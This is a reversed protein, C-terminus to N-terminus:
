KLDDQNMLPFKESLVKAAQDNDEVRLVVYAGDGSGAVFAYVYEININAGALTWLVEALGGPTNPMKVVTVDTLSAIVNKDQLVKLAKDNDDVILRLIGFDPTDAVSLAYLNIGYSSLLDVIAALRGKQNEVFVSLQKVM